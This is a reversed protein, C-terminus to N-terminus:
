RWTPQELPAIHRATLHPARQELVYGRKGVVGVWRGLYQQLNVEPAPTIYCLIEGKDTTLAYRPAGPKSSDVQILRGTGDFRGAVEAQPQLHEVPERTRKALYEEVAARKIEAQRALLEDQRQKINEFRAIRAVLNRARGRAVATGAVDVLHNAQERLADFFWRKPDTLVMATLELELRGLEAQFAEASLTPKQASDDVAPTEPKEKNPPPESSTQPQVDAEAIWRFEGSPPAIKIWGNSDPPELVEVLEDKRLRVQVVHREDSLRSGIRAAAGDEIVVALNNELLKAHRDSLWSFSSNTPRIACWGGSEHRYVEVTQGRSLKETPYYSGGPGSRVYAEEAVVVAQYPFTTLSQATQACVAYSIQLLVISLLHM